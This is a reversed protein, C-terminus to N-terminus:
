LITKIVFIKNKESKIKNSAKLCSNKKKKLMCFQPQNFYGCSCSTTGVVVSTGMYSCSTKIKIKNKEDENKKRKKKKKKRKKKRKKKGYFNDFSICVVVVPKGVVVSPFGCSCSTKIKIKNQLM